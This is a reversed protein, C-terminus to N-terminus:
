SNALSNSIRTVVGDWAKKETAPYNILVCTILRGAFNCRNYWILGNRVSSVVFFNPTVRQYVIDHPPRKRALFAAPTDSNDNRLSQVTLNARGDSTLFRAGYGADPKGAQNTFVAIPLDVNAGTEAVVYKRWDTEQAGALAPWLALIAVVISRDLMM